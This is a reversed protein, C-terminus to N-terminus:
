VGAGAELARHLPQEGLRSALQADEIRVARREPQVIGRADRLELAEEARAARPADVQHDVLGVVDRPLARAEEAQERAERVHHLDVARVLVDALQLVREEHEVRLVVHATRDRREVAAGRSEAVLDLREGHALAEHLDPFRGVGADRAGDGPKLWSLDPVSWTKKAHM